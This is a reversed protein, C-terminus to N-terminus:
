FVIRAAHEYPTDKGLDNITLQDFRCLTSYSIEKIVCMGMGASVGAGVILSGRVTWRIFDPLMMFGQRPPKASACVKERANFDELAAAHVGKAQVVGEDADLLHEPVLAQIARAIAAKEGRRASYLM